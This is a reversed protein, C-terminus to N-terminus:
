SGSRSSAARLWPRLALSATALLCIGLARTVPDSQTGIAAVGMGGTFLHVGLTWRGESKRAAPAARLLIALAASGAWGWAVLWIMLIKWRADGQWWAVTSIVAVLPAVAFSIRWFTVSADDQGRGVGRLSRWSWLPHLIWIALIAPLTAVAALLSAHAWGPGFLAGALVTTALLVGAQTLRRVTRRRSPALLPAGYSRTLLEPSVAALVGGVWGLLAVSLHVQLRLPREPLVWRGAYSLESLTGVVVAIFLSLVALRLGSITEGRSPTRLLRVALMPVVILMSLELFGFGSHFGVRLPLVGLVALALTVLGVVLMGHVGRALWAPRVPAGTWDPMGQFLVGFLGMSLFGVTGLHALLLTLPAYGSILTVNGQVLLLAGAGALALPATFYFFGAVSSPAARESSPGAIPM